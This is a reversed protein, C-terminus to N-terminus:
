TETRLDKDWHSLKRLKKELVDAVFICRSIYIHYLCVGWVSIATFAVSINTHWKFDVLFVNGNQNYHSLFHFDKIHLYKQFTNISNTTSNFYPLLSFGQKITSYVICTRINCCNVWMRVLLFNWALFYLQRFFVVLNFFLCDCISSTVAFGGLLFAGLWYIEEWIFSWFSILWCAIEILLTKALCTTLYRLPFRDGHSLHCAAEVM